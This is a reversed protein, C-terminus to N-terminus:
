PEARVLKMIPAQWVMPNTVIGNRFLVVLRLADEISDARVELTQVREGAEKQDVDQGRGTSHPWVHIEAHWEYASM